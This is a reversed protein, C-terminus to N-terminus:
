FAPRSSAGSKNRKNQRRKDKRLERKSMGPEEKSGQSSTKPGVLNIADESVDNVNSVVSSYDSLKLGTAEQRLQSISGRKVCNNVMKIGGGKTKKGSPSKKKGDAVYGPWCSDAM